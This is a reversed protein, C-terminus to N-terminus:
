HADLVSRVTSLLTRVGCPKRVVPMLRWLERADDVHAARAMFILRMEPRGRRIREVAEAPNPRAVAIDMLLAHIATEHESSVTAAEEVDRAELARFGNQELITQIMWRHLFDSDVVLVTRDNGGATMRIRSLEDTIM